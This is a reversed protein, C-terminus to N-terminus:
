NEGKACIEEYANRSIPTLGQIKIQKKLIEQISKLDVKNCFPEFLDFHIAMALSKLTHKRIDDLQYIGHKEFREFLKEPTDIMVEKVLACGLAVGRGGKSLTEYFVVLDGSSLDKIKPYCYYVNDVRMKLSSINTPDEKGTVLMARSWEPYIPILVYKKHLLHIRLPYYERMLSEDNHVILDNGNENILVARRKV